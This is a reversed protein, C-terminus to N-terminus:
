KTRLQPNFILSGIDALLNVVVYVAAMIMVIAEITPVDLDGIANILLRGIGDFTFVTEIVVVGGILWAINLATVNLMPAIASPLAHRLLVRLRPLGKLTAMRVHDSELVDILNDRLMRVGYATMAAVLTLTPLTLTRLLEPFSKVQDILSLAPFLPWNVAFAIVLLTAIVFEPISMGMLSVVSILNDLFRGRFSAAILGFSFSLPLYILLAIAALTFTNRLRPKIIEAVPRQGTLSMGLDGQVFGTLWRSYRELPSANLNLKERMLALTEPTAERGLLRSAADGPLVETAAFIVVSALWLTFLSLVLRSLILRLLSSM